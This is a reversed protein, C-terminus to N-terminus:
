KPTWSIVVSNFMFRILDVVKTQKTPSKKNQKNVLGIASYLNQLTISTCFSMGLPVRQNEKQGPSHVSILSNQATLLLLLPNQQIESDSM